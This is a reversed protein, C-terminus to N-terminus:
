QGLQMQLDQWVEENDALVYLVDGTQLDTSGVPVVYSGDRQIALVNISPPLGLEVIKKGASSNNEPIKIERMLESVRDPDEM